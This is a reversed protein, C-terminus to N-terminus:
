FIFSCPVSNFLFCFRLLLVRQKRIRKHGNKKKWKKATKERKWKSHSYAFQPSLQIFSIIYPKGIGYMKLPGVFAIATRSILFLFLLWFSRSCSHSFLKWIPWKGIRVLIDRRIVSYCDVYCCKSGDVLWSCRNLCCNEKEWNTLSEIIKWKIVAYVGYVGNM